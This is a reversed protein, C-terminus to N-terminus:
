AKEDDAEDNGKIGNVEREVEQIRVQTRTVTGQMEKTRGQLEEIARGTGWTEMDQEGKWEGYMTGQRRSEEQEMWAQWLQQKRVDEQRQMEM